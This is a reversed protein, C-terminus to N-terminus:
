FFSSLYELWSKHVRRRRQGCGCISIPEISFEEIPMPAPYIQPSSHPTPPPVPSVPLPILHYQKKHISKFEKIEGDELDSPYVSTPTPPESSVSMSSNINPM